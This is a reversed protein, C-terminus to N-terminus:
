GSPCPVKKNCVCTAPDECMHPLVAVPTCTIFPNGAHGEKCRCDYSGVTNICVANTGCANSSWCEDLDSLPIESFHSRIESITTKRWSNWLWIPFYLRDFDFDDMSARHQAVLNLIVIRGQWSLRDFDDISDLTSWFYM